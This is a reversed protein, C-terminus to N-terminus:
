FFNYFYFVCKINLLKKKKLRETQSITHFFLTSGYLGFIVIHRMRKADQNGLDLFVFESYMISVAKKSCCNNYWRAETNRYVTIGRSVFIIREPIVNM